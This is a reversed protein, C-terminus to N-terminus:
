TVGILPDGERGDHCICLSRFETVTNSALSQFNIKAVIRINLPGRRCPDIGRRSGEALGNPSM